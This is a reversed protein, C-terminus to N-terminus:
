PATTAAAGAGGVHAAGVRRAREALRADIRRVVLIASLAAGISVIPLMAVACDGSGAPGPDLIALNLGYGLLLRTGWLAGWIAIPPRPPGAPAPSLTVAAERYGHVDDGTSPRPVVPVRSPDIARDIQRIGVYPMFIGIVPLFSGTTAWYASSQPFQAGLRQGRDVVAGVWRFYCVICGVFVFMSGNTWQVLDFIQLVRVSSAGASAVLVVAAAQMLDLAALIALAAVLSKALDHAAADPAPQRVM